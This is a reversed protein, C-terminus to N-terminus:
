KASAVGKSLAVGASKSNLAPVGTAMSNGRFSAIALSCQDQLAPNRSLGRLRLLTNRARAQVGPSQVRPMLSELETISAHLCAIDYAVEPPTGAAVVSDLFRLQYGVHRYCDLKSINDLSEKARHQYVGCSGVYLFDDTVRSRTTQDFSAIESRRAKRVREMLRGNDESQAELAVYHRAALQMESNPAAALPNVILSDMRHKIEEYFAPDLTGRLLNTTLLGELPALSDHIEASQVRRARLAAEAQRLLDKLAPASHALAAQESGAHPVFMSLCVPEEVEALSRFDASTFETIEQHILM